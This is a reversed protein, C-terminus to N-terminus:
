VLYVHIQNDLKFGNFYGSRLLKKFTLLPNQRYFYYIHSCRLVWRLADFCFEGHSYEIKKTFNQAFLDMTLLTIYSACSAWIDFWFAKKQWIQVHFKNFMNDFRESMCFELACPNRSFHSSPQPCEVNFHEFLIARTITLMDASSACSPM